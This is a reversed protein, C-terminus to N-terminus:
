YFGGIGDESDSDSSSWDGESNEEESSIGALARLETAQLPNGLGISLQLGEGEDITHYSWEYDLDAISHPASPAGFLCKVKLLEVALVPEEAEKIHSSNDLSSASDVRRVPLRFQPAKAEAVLGDEIVARKFSPNKLTQVGTVFFVPKNQYAMKRLFSRTVSDQRLTNFVAAPKHLTTHSMEEASLLLLNEHSYHPQGSLQSVFRTSTFRGYEDHAVTDEYKLQVHSEKYAPTTSPKLSASVAYLPDTVLQGLTISTSSLPTPLVLLRSM